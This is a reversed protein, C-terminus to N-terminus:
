IATQLRQRCEDRFRTIFRRHSEKNGGFSQALLRSISAINDNGLKWSDLIKSRRDDQALLAAMEKAMVDSEILSEGFGKDLTHLDYPEFELEEDDEEGEVDVESFPVASENKNRRIADSAEEGILRQIYRRHKESGRETQLYGSVRRIAREEFLTQDTLEGRIRDSTEYIAEIIWPNEYVISNNKYM